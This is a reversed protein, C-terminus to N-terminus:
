KRCEQPGQVSLRNVRSSSRFVLARIKGRALQVCCEPQSGTRLHLNRADIVYGYTACRAETWQPNHLNPQSRSNRLQAKFLAKHHPHRGALGPPNRRVPVANAGLPHPQRIGRGHSTSSGESCTELALAAAAAVKASARKRAAYGASRVVERYMDTVIHTFPRTQLRTQCYESIVQTFFLLIM